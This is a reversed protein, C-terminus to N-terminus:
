DRTPIVENHGRLVGRTRQLPQERSRYALVGSAVGPIHITLSEYGRDEGPWPSELSFGIFHDRPFGLFSDAKALLVLLDM